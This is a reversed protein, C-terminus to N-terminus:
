KPQQRPDDAKKQQEVGSPSHASELKNSESHHSEGHHSHLHPEDSDEHNEEPNRTKTKSSDPAKKPGPGKPSNPADIFHSRIGSVATDGGLQEEEIESYDAARAARAAAKRKSSNPPPKIDDPNGLQDEQKKNADERADDPLGSQKLREGASIEQRKPASSGKGVVEATWGPQAFVILLLLIPAVWFFGISFSLPTPGNTRRPM